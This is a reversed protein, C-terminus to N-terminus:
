LDLTNVPERSDPTAAARRAATRTLLALRASRGAKQLGLAGAVLLGAVVGDLWYHNATVVVVLTTLAPYLVALWRWRSRSATIVAVAVIVSWGVHVSPMASFEDFGIAYVSQGYLVATDVLGSGPLLRPPAVPILQILLAAATFLVVTTRVQRYHRRHWIFVWGLCSFMVPFHLGAYYLNFLQIILPHPLFVRQLPAENPLHLWREAHWLWQARPLGGSSPLVSFTGAYRWLAFLAALLAAEGTFRGTAVLRPRRTRILVVAVPALVAALVAGQSWSLELHPV